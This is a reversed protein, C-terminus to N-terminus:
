RRKDSSGAQLRATLQRGPMFNEIHGIPGPMGWSWGGPAVFGVALLGFWTAAGVGLAARLRRFSAVERAPALM